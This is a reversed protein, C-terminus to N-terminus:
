LYKIIIRSEEILENLGELKISPLFLMLEYYMGPGNNIIKITNSTITVFKNVYEKPTLEEDKLQQSIIMLKDKFYNNASTIYLPNLTIIVEDKEDETNSIIINNNEEEVEYQYFVDLGKNVGNSMILKELLTNNVEEKISITHEKNNIRVQGISKGKKSISSILKMITIVAENTTRVEQQQISKITEEYYKSYKIFEDISNISQIILKNNM